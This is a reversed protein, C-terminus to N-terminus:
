EGAKEIFAYYLEEAMLGIFVILLAVNERLEFMMFLWVGVSLVSFIRAKWIRSFIMLMAGLIVGFILIEPTEEFSIITALFINIM